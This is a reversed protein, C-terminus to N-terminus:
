SGEKQGESAERDSGLIRGMADAVDRRGEDLVHGYLDMTTRIRSHGLLDMVMRTPVGQALLLTACWHRQDHFRKYPVGAAKVLKQYTRGVESPHAPTGITSTFVYGTEQWRGGAVLRAELQKVRHARLAEVVERPLAISRRSRATKLRKRVLGQGTVRQLQYRVHLVGRDFDVDEWTLGLAEGQRLGLALAVSFVAGFRDQRAVDLFRLAEERTWPQVETQPVKPSDVLSVVNRAVLDLKVARNLAIGLVTRIRFVTQPTCGAAEKRRLLAAVHQATLKALQHKGLDPVLHIRVTSEYRAHTGPERNPKVEHELWWALFQGVTQRPVDVPLGRQQKGLEETLKEAVEKRTKGYLYKRKRKGDQWGLNLVSVWVGDQRQYISGENQGRKAM